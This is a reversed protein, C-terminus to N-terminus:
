SIAVRKTFLIENGYLKFLVFNENNEGNVAYWNAKDDIIREKEFDNPNLYGGFFTIM